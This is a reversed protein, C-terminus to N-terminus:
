CKYKWVYGGASKLKGKCCNAINSRNIELEKEVIFGCDWERIFDGSISYQLVPRKRKQQVKAWHGSELHNKGNIKGWKTGVIKGGKKGGKSRLEICKYYPTKDVPYGYEKQLEIERKSAEYICDHIELITYENYGQESVREIHEQACGIKGIKGNKRKYTRIHYIYYKIM